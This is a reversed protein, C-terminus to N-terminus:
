NRARRGKAEGFRFTLGFLFQHTLPETVVRQGGALKMDLDAYSAKYELFLALYRMLDFNLGAFGQATWGAVQYEGTTIGNVSAEVHPVATGAGLGVYPQLRGLFSNDREGKLFWRRTGNLTLLNLGHSANFSQLTSGIPERTEIALGARRGSVKVVQDPDLYIKAHSFDLALGWEPCAGFWHTVRLGYYLPNEFSRDDWGVDHLTLRSAGSLGQFRLDNDHTISKGGYVSINWEARAELAGGALVSWFCSGFIIWRRLRVHRVPPQTFM